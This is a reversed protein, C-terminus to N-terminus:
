SEALSKPKLDKVLVTSNEEEEPVLEAPQHSEPMLQSLTHEFDEVTTTLIRETKLMSDKVTPNTALDLLLELKLQQQAVAPDIVPGQSGEALSM